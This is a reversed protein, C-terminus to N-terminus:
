QNKCNLFPELHRIRRRFFILILCMVFRSPFNIGVNRPLETLLLLLEPVKPFIVRYRTQEEHKVGITEMQM